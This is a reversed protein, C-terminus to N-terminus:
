FDRQDEPILGPHDNASIYTVNDLSAGKEITRLMSNAKYPMKTKERQENQEILSLRYAFEKYEDINKQIPVHKKQKENWESVQFAVIGKFLKKDLNLVNGKLDLKFIEPKKFEKLVKEYMDEDTTEFIGSFTNAGVKVQRSGLDIKFLKAEAMINGRERLNCSPPNTVAGM